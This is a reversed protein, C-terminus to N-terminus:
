RKHKKRRQHHQANNVNAPRADQQPNELKTPAQLPVPLDRVLNKVHRESVEFWEAVMSVPVGDMVIRVIGDDRFDRYVCACSAPQLIIGGFERVMKQADAWGLIRALMHDAKLVKPVYLIVHQSEAAPYRRDRSYCRPLQSILFLAKEIGIVDAIERVSNPLRM